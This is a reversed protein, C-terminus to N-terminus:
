RDIKRRNGHTAAGLVGVLLQADAVTCWVDFRKCVTYDGVNVM